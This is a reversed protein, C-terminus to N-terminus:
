YWMETILDSKLLVRNQCIFYSAPYNLNKFNTVSFRFSPFTIVSVRFRYTRYSVSKRSFFSYTVSRIPDEHLLQVM